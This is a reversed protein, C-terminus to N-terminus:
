VCKIASDALVLLVNILTAGIVNSCMLCIYSM